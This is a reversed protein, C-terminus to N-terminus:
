PKRARIAADIENAANIMYRRKEWRPDDVELPERPTRGWAEKFTRIILCCAEREALVAARIEQKIALSIQSETTM